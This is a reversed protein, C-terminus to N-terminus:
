NCWLRGLKYLDDAEIFLGANGSIGGMHADGEDHVYGRLHQKRFFPDVVTHTILDESFYRLPQFTTTVAGLKHYFQTKVYSDLDTQTIQEVAEKLLMFNLCSYVYRKNKQLPTAIVDRLLVDHMQKSAYLNKAVPMYFQASSDPSIQTPSFRYD